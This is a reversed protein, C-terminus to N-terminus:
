RGKFIVLITKMLIKIDLSFSWTYIYALDLEIWEDFDLNSRESIQWLGTIGPMVCFRKRQVAEDLLEVDRMPLPRPGVLSMHGRLVNLLQPLEDISTKRIFSGVKTIRPDNKIKFMPGQAENLHELEQQKIEADACMSRFKLMPFVRKNLGVRKQVFFVPGKSDLKIMLATIAFIPVLIPVSLTIAIIDFMRKVILILENQAVSQFCLLPLIGLHTLSVRTAQYDYIDAMMSLIVGEQECNRAIEEADDILKRPLAMIVEDVVRDKLIASIDNVTGIVKGDCVATDKRSEDPDLYGVIKVGWESEEKLKETLFEARPGSGIILVQLYNEEREVTKKFYWWILFLRSSIFLASYNLFFMIMIGRSAFELKFTFISTSLVLFTVALVKVIILTIELASLFKFKKYAGIMHLCVFLTPLIILLLYYHLFISEYMDERIVIYLDIAIAFAFIALCLDLMSLLRRLYYLKEYIM